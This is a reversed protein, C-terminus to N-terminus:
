MLKMDIMDIFKVDIGDEEDEFKLVFVKPCRERYEPPSIPGGGINVTDDGGVCNGPCECESIYYDKTVSTKVNLSDTIELKVSFDGPFPWSYYLYSQSAGQIEMYMHLVRM